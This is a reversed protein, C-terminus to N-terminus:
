FLARNPPAKRRAEEWLQVGLKHKSAFLLRYLEVERSNRVSIPTGWQYHYKTTLRSKYFDIWQYAPQSGDPNLPISRWEPTGFFRDAQAQGPPLNKAADAIRRLGGISFNIIIDTRKLSALQTVTTWDLELGEPDLFALSLSNWNTKSFPPSDVQRIVAAIQNVAQNCDGTLIQIHRHESISQCRKQLTDALTEDREVFYYDTFGAGTTLALLPSGLFIDPDKTPCKGSRAVCNKGPGAQLDIYYRRRWPKNQMAVTSTAIYHELISLKKKAWRGSPRMPLGDDVPQLLINTTM